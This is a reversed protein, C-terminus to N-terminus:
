DDLESPLPYDPYSARFRTLEEALKEDQHTKKLQLLQAIWADAVPIEDTSKELESALGASDQETAAQTSASELRLPNSRAESVAKAAPTKDALSERTVSEEPVAGSRNAQKGAAAGDAEIRFEDAKKLVPAPAQQEQELVVTFAMLVVAATAFAGPWGFVWPKRGARGPSELARQARNLVAQDLLDPPEEKGLRAWNSSVKGIDRDLENEENQHRTDTTM